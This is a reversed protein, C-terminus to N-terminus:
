MTDMWITRVWMTDMWVRGVWGDYIGYVRFRHLQVSGGSDFCARHKKLVFYLIVWLAATDSLNMSSINSITVSVKCQFM